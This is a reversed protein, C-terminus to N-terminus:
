NSILIKSTSIGEKSYVRIFYLGPPLYGVIFDLQTNYYNISQSDDQFILQGLLNLVEVKIAQDINNNLKLSLVNSTIHVRINLPNNSLSQSTFVRKIRLTDLTNWNTDLFLVLSDGLVKGESIAGIFRTKSFYYDEQSSSSYNWSKTRLTIGLGSKITVSEQCFDSAASRYCSVSFADANSQTTCIPLSWDSCTFDSYQSTKFNFVERELDTKQTRSDYGPIFQFLASDTQREYVIRQSDHYSLYGSNNTYTSTYIIAYKKGKIVTDGLVKSFYYGKGKWDYRNTYYTGPGNRYTSWGNWVYENYYLTVTGVSLPKLPATTGQAFSVASYSALMIVAICAARLYSQTLM